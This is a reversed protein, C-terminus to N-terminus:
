CPGWNALLILLDATGVAGSGDFDAPGDTGWQALLELLDGTGVAGSDDLDLSCLPTCNLEFIYASGSSSGNDDDRYSGVVVDNGSMSPFLGFSDNEAGDSALLKQVEIWHSLGSDWQFVYVSGSGGDGPAGVLVTNGSISVFGFGSGASADSAHLIQEEVWKLEGPNWRYVYASGSSEGHDDDLAAGVIAVNDSIAVSLGFRDWSAGDSAVLKQEEVWSNIKSNWRYIYAAGFNEGNKPDDVYSAGVIVTDVSTPNEANTSFAIRGGFLDNTAGDSAFLEQEQDWVQSKPNWRYISVSGSAIGNNNGWAAGVAALNGQMATSWGFSAQISQDWDVLEQEEIWTQTDPHWRYIFASGCPDWGGPSGIIAVNNSISVANGFYLGPQFPHPHLLKQEEVWLESQYDWRYIYASGKEQGSDDDWPAGVIVTDGSISVSRGFLDGSTGESALIKQIEQPNCQGYLPAAMTLIVTAVVILTIILSHGEVYRIRSSYM